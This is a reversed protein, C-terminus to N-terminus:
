IDRALNVSIQRYGLIRGWGKRGGTILSKTCGIARAKDVIEDHMIKLEELNGGSLVLSVATFNPYSKVQTVVVSEEGSWLEMEGKMVSALVHEESFAGDSYELANLIHHRHKKWAEGM